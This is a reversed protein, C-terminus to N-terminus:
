HDMLQAMELFLPFIAFRYIRDGGLEVISLLEGNFTAAHAHPADQRSPVGDEGSAFEYYDTFILDGISGDDNLEFVSVAGGAYNAVALLNADKNIALHAPGTSEM